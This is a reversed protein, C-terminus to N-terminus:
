HLAALHPLTEALLWCFLGAALFSFRPHNVSFAALALFILGLVLLVLQLVTM